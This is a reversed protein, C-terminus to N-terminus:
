SVPNILTYIPSDLFKGNYYYNEKHYTERIFNKRQVTSHVRYQDASGSSNHDPFGHVEIDPQFFIEEADNETIETLNLSKTSRIPFLNFNLELM